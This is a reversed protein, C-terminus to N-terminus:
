KVAQPSFKPPWDPIMCYELEEFSDALTESHMKRIVPGGPERMVRFNMSKLKGSVFRSLHMSYRLTIMGKMFSKEKKKKTTTKM